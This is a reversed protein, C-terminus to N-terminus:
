SYSFENKLTRRGVWCWGKPSAIFPLDLLHPHSAELPIRINKQVSKQQDRGEIWCKLPFDENLPYASLDDKIGGKKEQCNILKLIDNRHQKATPRLLNLLISLLDAISFLGQCLGWIKIRARCLGSSATSVLQLPNLEAEPGWPSRADQLKATSM